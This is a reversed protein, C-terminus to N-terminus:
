GAAARDHAAIPLTFFFRAGGSNPSECWIKGGLRHIIEHCISLGLGTGKPIEGGGRSVQHFKEFILTVEEPPVGIGTDAVEVLIMEGSRKAAVMIRGEKTFKIANSLLNDMVQILQDRDAYVSPLDDPIDTVLSINGGRVMGIVARVTTEVVQKISIPEVRWETRGSEIKSIDLVDNILRTLRESEQHIIQLFEKQTEPACQSESLLIEAFGRISTLPTRFEHSVKSVFESKLADHRRTEEYLRINEIATGMQNAVTLFLELDRDQYPHPQHDFVSIVGLVTGKSRIPVSVFHKFSRAPDPHGDRVDASDPAGGASKPEGSQAVRGILGVGAPIRYFEEAEQPTMGEQASLRLDNRPADFLHIMGGKVQFVHVMASLTQTLIENLNLSRTLTSVIAYLSALERNRAQLEITRAAVERELGAYSRKLKAAMENIEESLAEIEDGTKVKVRYDLNGMGIRKAGEQLVLIPRIIRRTLYIGLFALSGAGLSGAIAIWRLLLVVPAYTEKPDQSTFIVWRNGGLSSPHLPHTLSIPAFGNISEPGAYHVDYRTEAWGSAPQFIAKILPVELSHNKILFIPCFLLTGDSGALMTHDTKALKVETVAKFFQNIRHFMTLVGIVRTGGPELVPVSVDLLYPGKKGPEVEEQHIDSVYFAGKGGNYAAHWWTRDGQLLESLPDTTAVVLGSLDTVVILFHDEREAPDSLFEKLYRSAPNESIKEIYNSRWKPNGANAQITDLRQTIEGPSIGVYARNASEITRRVDGALALARASNLHQDIMSVLHKGTEEAIKQFSRGINRRMEEKGISYVFALGLISSFVAAAIISFVIRGALGPRPSLAPLGPPAAAM